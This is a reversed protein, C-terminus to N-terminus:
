VSVGPCVVLSPAEPVPRPAVTEADDCDEKMWNEVAWEIHEMLRNRDDAPMAAIADQLAVLRPDLWHVVGGSGYLSLIQFLTSLRPDRAGRELCSVQQHSVSLRAAVDSQRMGAHERLSRLVGGIEALATM